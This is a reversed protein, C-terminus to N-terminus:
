ERIIDDREDVRALLVSVFHISWIGDDVEELGVVYNDLANALYLLRSQFRITGADTVRKVLFHGLYNLPPLHTPYPRRSPTYSRVPRHGATIVARSRGLVIRYASRSSRPRRPRHTDM